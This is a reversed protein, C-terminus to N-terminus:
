EKYDLAKKFGKYLGVGNIILLIGACVSYFGGLGSNWVAAVSAVLVMLWVILYAFRLFSNFRDKNTMAM